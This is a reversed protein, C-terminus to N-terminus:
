VASFCIGNDRTVPQPVTAIQLALKDWETTYRFNNVGWVVLSLGVNLDPDSVHPFSFSINQAACILNMLDCGRM